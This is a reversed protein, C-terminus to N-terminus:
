IALVDTVVSILASRYENRLDAHCTFGSGMSCVSTM